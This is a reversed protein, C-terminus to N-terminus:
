QLVIEKGREASNYIEDIVRMRQVAESGISVVPHHGKVVGAFHNLGKEYSKRFLIQPSEIKAPALNVLYGHLEENM